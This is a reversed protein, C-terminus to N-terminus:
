AASIICFSSAIGAFSSEFDFTRERSNRFVPSFPQKYIELRSEIGASGRLLEDGLSKRRRTNDSLERTNDTLRVPTWAIQQRTIPRATFIEPEPERFADSQLRRLEFRINLFSIISLSGSQFGCSISVCIELNTPLSMCRAGLCRRRLPTLRQLQCAHM